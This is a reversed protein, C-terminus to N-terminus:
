AKLVLKCQTANSCHPSSFVGHGRFTFLFIIIHVHNTSIVYILDHQKPIPHEFSLLDSSIVLESIFPLMMVIFVLGYKSVLCPTWLLFRRRNALRVQQMYEISVERFLAFMTILDLEIYLYRCRYINHLHRILPPHRPKQSFLRGASLRCELPYSKHEDERRCRRKNMRLPIWLTKARLPFIYQGYRGLIRCTDPDSTDQKVKSWPCWLSCYKQSEGINVVTSQSPYHVGCKM